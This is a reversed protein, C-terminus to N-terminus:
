MLRTFIRLDGREVRGPIGKLPGSGHECLAILVCLDCGLLPVMPTPVRLLM